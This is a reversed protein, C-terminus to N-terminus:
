TVNGSADPRFPTSPAGPDRYYKPSGSERIYYRFCGMGLLIEGQSITDAAGSVIRDIDGRTTILIYKVLDQFENRKSRDMGSISYFQTLQDAYEQMTQEKGRETDVVVQSDIVSDFYFGLRAINVKGKLIRYEQNEDAPIVMPIVANEVTKEYPTPDPLPFKSNAVELLLKRTYPSLPSVLVVEGTELPVRYLRRLAPSVDTTM